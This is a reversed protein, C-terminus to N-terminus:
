FAGNHEFPTKIYVSLSSGDHMADVRGSGSRGEVAHRWSDLAFDWWGVRVVCREIKMPFKGWIVRFHIMRTVYM